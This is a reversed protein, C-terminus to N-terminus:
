VPAPEFLPLYRLQPISLNISGAVAQLYGITRPDHLSAAVRELVAVDGHTIVNVHNEAAFEAAGGLTADGARLLVARMRPARATGITRAVVIAPLPERRVHPATAPELFQTKPPALRAAVYCGDRGINGAHILPVSTPTRAAVMAAPTQNWVYSGTVIKVGTSEVTAAVAAFESAAPAFVVGGDPRIITFEDPQARAGAEPSRRRVVFMTVDQNAESSFRGLHRLGAIVCNRYLTARAPAACPAACFSSPLIFVGYGEPALERVMKVVFALYMNTRGVLEPFLKKYFAQFKASYNKLEVYPPNALVLGYQQRPEWQLYDCPTFPGMEPYRRTLVAVLEPDLERATVQEPTYGLDRILVDILEGSGAAPELARSCAGKADPEPPRWGAAELMPRIQAHIRRPTFFQGFQSRREVDAAGIYRVSEQSLEPQREGEAAADFAVGAMAASNENEPRREGSYLSEINAEDYMRRLTFRWRPARAALFENAFLELERLKPHTHLEALASSAEADIYDSGCM